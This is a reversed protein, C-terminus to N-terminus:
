NGMANGIQQFYGSYFSLIQQAIALMIIFYVLKPTWSALMQFKRKGEDLYHEHLRRLTTDIQGSIEGSHYLNAFMEPFEKSQALEDAPTRGSMELAPIWTAVTQKLAPSGCADAALQWAEIYTVGASILAELAAALRSLALDRRAGGLVPIRHLVQEIVAQWKEGHESRFVYALALGTAILPAIVLIKAFVFPWVEGRLVLGSILSVPFLFIAFILVFVPYMLGSIVERMMQARTRYHDALLKFCQDLRGSQEGSNLLAVDFAPMWQGLRRMADTFTAGGEIHLILQGLPASFDGRVPKKRLTEMAQVLTIGAATLTGLQYYLEARQHLHRPTVILPM